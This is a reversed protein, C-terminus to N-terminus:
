YLEYESFVCPLAGNYVPIRRSSRLGIQKALKKNGTLVYAKWGKFRQKFVDGLKRYLEGLERVKGLREGYPPNCIIIGRDSPAEIEELESHWFRVKGSVGCNRANELAHSVVKPDRDSGWIPAPLATKQEALATQKLQQWLEGDFDTWKMFAFRDRFLGPAINLAKLSAELPLTGSGCLPDLFAVDGRYDAMDLLAAALTEKLPALGVAPRYGRRHLSTGSSDLSLVARDGRVYINVLLDPDTIDVSSRKGFEERQADVIANKVELATYHTHNLRDNGGTANVALTRDPALYQSWDIQQVERYLMARDRCPFEAIPMLIRFALRSRLNVRYLLARDGEFGVGGVETRLNKGGLSEIETAAIAELGRAVTAFYECVM